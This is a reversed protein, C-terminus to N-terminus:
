YIFYFVGCGLGESPFRDHANENAISASRPSTCRMLNPYGGRPDSRAKNNYVRLMRKYLRFIECNKQESNTLLPSFHLFDSFRFFSESLPQCVAISTIYYKGYSAYAEFVLLSRRAM